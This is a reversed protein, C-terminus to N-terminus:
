PVENSLEWALVAPDNIYKLGSFTRHFTVHHALSLRCIHLCSLIAEAKGM